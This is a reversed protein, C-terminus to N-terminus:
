HSPSTLDLPLYIIKLPRSDLTKGRLKNLTVSIALRARVCFTLLNREINTSSAADALLPLLLTEVSLHGGGDLNGLLSAIEMGHFGTIEDVLQHGAELGLLLARHHGVM